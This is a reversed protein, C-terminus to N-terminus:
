AGGALKRVARALGRAPQFLLPKGRLWSKSDRGVKRALSLWASAEVSGEALPIAGNMLHRKYDQDGKGFDLIRVGAQAAHEAMKLILLLGPSFKEFGPNYAPFWWHWTSESRLGFHAAAVESGAYLVSLTGKLQPTQKALLRSLVSDLLELSHRSEYRAARWTLLDSSCV